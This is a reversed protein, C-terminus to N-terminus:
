FSRIPVDGGECLLLCLVQKTTEAEVLEESGARLRSSRKQRTLPAAAAETPRRKDPVNPVPRAHRTTMRMFHVQGTLFTM